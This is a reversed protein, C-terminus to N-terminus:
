DSKAATKGVAALYLVFEERGDIGLWRDIASQHYSLLPCAGMGLATAALCVNQCAHGAEMAIMRHATFAYKWETRRPTATWLLVAAACKVAPEGYCAAQLKQPALASELVVILSHTEPEYLYIGPVLGAVNAVGIYTELPYRGGASPATRFRAEGDYGTVGQAAWLLFGLDALSLPEDSFNRVSRRTELLEKFDMTRASSASPAPLAIRHMDEPLSKRGPPAPIGKERDSQPRWDGDYGKLFVRLQDYSFSDLPQTSPSAALLGTIAFLISISIRLFFGM